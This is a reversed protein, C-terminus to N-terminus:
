LHYDSSRVNTSDANIMNALEDLLTTFEPIIDPIEYLEPITIYLCSNDYRHTILLVDTERACAGEEGSSVLVRTKRVM